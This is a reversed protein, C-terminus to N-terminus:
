KSTCYLAPSQGEIYDIALLALRSFTVRTPSSFALVRFACKKWRIFLGELLIRLSIQFRDYWFKFHCRISCYWEVCLPSGKCSGMTTDVCDLHFCRSVKLVCLMECECEKGQQFLYGAETQWLSTHPRDRILTICKKAGKMFSGLHSELSCILASTKGRIFM